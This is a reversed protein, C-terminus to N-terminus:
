YYLEFLDKYNNQVPAYLLVNLLNFRVCFLHEMSKTMTKMKRQEKQRVQILFQRHKRQLLHIIEQQTANVELSDVYVVRWCGSFRLASTVVSVSLHSLENIHQCSGYLWKNKWLVLSSLLLIQTQKDLSRFHTTNTLITNPMWCISGCCCNILM